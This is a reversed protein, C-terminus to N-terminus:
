NKNIKLNKNKAQFQAGRGGGGGGRAGSDMCTDRKTDNRQLDQM